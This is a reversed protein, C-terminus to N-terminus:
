IGGDDNNWEGKRVERMAQLEEYEREWVECNRYYEAEVEAIKQCEVACKAPDDCPSDMSWRGCAMCKSNGQAPGCSSCYLDGCMCPM